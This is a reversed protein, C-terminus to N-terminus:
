IGLIGKDSIDEESLNEEIDELLMQVANRYGSFLKLNLQALERVGMEEKAYIIDGLEYEEKQAYVTMMGFLPMKELVDNEELMNKLANVDHETVKQEEDSVNCIGDLVDMQKEIFEQLNLAQEKLKRYKQALEKQEEETFAQPITKEIKRFDLERSCEKEVVESMKLNEAGEIRAGGETADIVRVLEGGDRIAKEFWQKYYWMQFDTQLMTGDIGEVEMLCRSKIYKDNDGLAGEIGSTHSKGGTFALDQGMFVIKRFGFYLAMSFAISSVSGGTPLIPFGYGLMNSVTENWGKEFYGFYYVRRGYQRIIEPKSANECCWTVDTLDMNSFFREPPNPDVTCVLDPHIGERMVARLAADVVIILARGQVKKLEKINKDLSPGACVIIAPIGDLQYGSLAERIQGVQRTDIMNKMNFLTNYPIVRRFSLSTGKKVADDRMREIIANQYDECEEHFLIDYGPLICFETFTFDSYQLTKKMIAEISDTAEPIYLNVRKDELIDSIDLCSCCIKFIEVCPECIIVHNTDDCKQLFARIHKGDSFGFLFYTGYPRIQYREAYVEAAYGTDYRSNLYWERGDQRVGIISEGDEARGAFIDKGKGSTEGIELIKPMLREIVKENEKLFKM